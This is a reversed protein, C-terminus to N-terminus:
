FISMKFCYDANMFTSSIKLTDSIMYQFHYPYTHSKQDCAKCRELSNTRKSKWLQVLSSSKVPWNARVTGLVIQCSCYINVNGFTVAFWHLLWVLMSPYIICDYVLKISSLLFPSLIDFQPHSFVADSFGLNIFDSCYSPYFSSPPFIAPTSWMRWFHLGSRSGASVRRSIM